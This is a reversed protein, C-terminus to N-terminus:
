GDGQIDGWGIKLDFWLCATLDKTALEGTGEQNEEATTRPKANLSRGLESVLRYKALGDPTRPTQRRM